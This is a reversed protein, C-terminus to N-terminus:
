TSKYDRFRRWLHVSVVGLALTLVSWLTIVTITVPLIQFLDRMEKYNYYEYPFSVSLTVVGYILGRLTNSVGSNILFLGAIYSFLLTASGGAVLFAPYPEASFGIVFEMNIRM